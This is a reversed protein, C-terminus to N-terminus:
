RDEARPLPNAIYDRNWGELGRTYVAILVACWPGGSACTVRELEYALPCGRSDPLHADEHRVTGDFTLRYGRCDAGFADEGAAVPMEALRLVHVAERRSPLHGWYPVQWVLVHPDPGIQGSARAAMVRGPDLPGLRKRLDAAAARARRRIEPLGVVGLDPHGDGISVSVPTGDLWRDRALDVAYWTAHGGGLGDYSGFVEFVFVGGDAGFGHVAVRDADGAVAPPALVIVAHALCLAFVLATLRM